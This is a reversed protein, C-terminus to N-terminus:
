CARNSAPSVGVQARSALRREVEERIQRWDDATMETAPGSNLAKLLDSELKARARECRDSEVLEAVYASVSEYGGEAVRHQVFEMLGEPLAIHNDLM